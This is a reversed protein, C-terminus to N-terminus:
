ADILHLSESLKAPLPNTIFFEISFRKIANQFRIVDCLIERNNGDRSKALRQVSYQYREYFAQHNLCMAVFLLLIAGNVISYAVSSFTCFFWEGFYGLTTSTDWPLSIRDFIHANKELIRNKLKIKM